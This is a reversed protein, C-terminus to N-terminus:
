GMPTLTLLDYKPITKQAVTQLEEVIFVFIIDPVNTLVSLLPRPHPVRAPPPPYADTNGNSLPLCRVMHIDPILPAGMM